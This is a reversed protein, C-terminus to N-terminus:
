GDEGDRSPTRILAGTGRDLTVFEVGAEDLAATIKALTAFNGGVWGDGGEMRQVTSIHVDAREALERASWRALARAARLQLSTFM